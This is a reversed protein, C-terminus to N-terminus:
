QTVACWRGRRLDGSHGNGRRRGRIALIMRQQVPSDREAAGPLPALARVRPNIGASALGRLAGGRARPLAVVGSRNAMEGYLGGLPLLALFALCGAASLVARLPV